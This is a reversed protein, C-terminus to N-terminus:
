LLDLQGIKKYQFYIFPQFSIAIASLVILVQMKSNFSIMVSFVPAMTAIFGSIIDLLAIKKLIMKNETSNRNLSIKEM